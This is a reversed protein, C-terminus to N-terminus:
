PAIDLPFGLQRLIANYRDLLANTDEAGTYIQALEYSYGDQRALGSLRTGADVDLTVRTGPFHQEVREIDECSPVRLVTGDRYSRVMFKASVAFPGERYPLSPREGVALQVIAQMNPAGDVLCFMETHSQSIRPNVELLWIHDRDDDYFYEINFASWDLGMHRIVRRSYEKVREQIVAPLRSPYEYRHFSTRNPGRISDIVGLVTVEGDVAYGEVTCQRGGIIAEAICTLSGAAEVEPPADVQRMITAFPEGVIGIQERIRQLAHRYERRNGVRFGLFSSHSRVPKLWFPYPLPPCAEHATAFPDILAFRPVADPIVCRQEIRSWYKHECKLVAELSPGPLGFHNTVIPILDSTPFDWYGTVGGVHGNSQELECISRYILDDIDYVPANVIEQMPLLGHFRYREADRMRNLQAHHFPDLGFIHVDHSLAEAM